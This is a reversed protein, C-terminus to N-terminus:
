HPINEQRRRLIDQVLEVYECSANKISYELLNEDFNHHKLMLVIEDEHFEALEKGFRQRLTSIDISSMLSKNYMLNEQVEEYLANESPTNVFRLSPLAVQFKQGLKIGKKHKFRDRICM